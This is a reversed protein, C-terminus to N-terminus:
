QKELGKAYELVKVADDWSKLEINKKKCYEELQNLKDGLVVLFYKLNKKVEYLKGNM